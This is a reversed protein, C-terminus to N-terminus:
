LDEYKEKMKGLEDSTINNMSKNMTNAASAAQFLKICLRMKPGHILWDGWLVALEKVEDDISIGGDEEPIIFLKHMNTIDYDTGISPALVNSYMKEMFEAFYIIGTKCFWEAYPISIASQFRRVEDKLEQNTAKLWKKPNKEMVKEPFKTYYGELWQLLQARERNENEVVEKISQEGKIKRLLNDNAFQVAGKSLKTRSAASGTRSPGRSPPRSEAVTDNVSNQPLSQNAATKRIDALSM